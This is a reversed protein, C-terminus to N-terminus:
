ALPEFQKWSVCSINISLFLHNRSEEAWFWKPEPSRPWFDIKKVASRNVGISKANKRRKQAGFNASGIVLVFSHM